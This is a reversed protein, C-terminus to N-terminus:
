TAFIKINQNERFHHPIKANRRRHKLSIPPEVSHSCFTELFSWIEKISKRWLAGFKKIPNKLNVSIKNNITSYRWKDQETSPFHGSLQIVKLLNRNINYWSFPFTPWLEICFSRRQDTVEAASDKGATALPRCQFCVGFWASHAPTSNFLSSM